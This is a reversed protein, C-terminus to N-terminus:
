KKDRKRRVAMQLDLDSPDTMEIAELNQKRRKGATV